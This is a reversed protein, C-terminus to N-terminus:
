MGLDNELVVGKLRKVRLLVENPLDFERVIRSLEVSDASIRRGDIIVRILEASKEVVAPRNIKSIPGLSKHYELVSVIAKLGDDRRQSCYEFGSMQDFISDVTVDENTLLDELWTVTSVHIRHGSKSRASRLVISSTEIGLQQLRHGTCPEQEISEGFYVADYVRAFLNAQAGLKSKQMAELMGLRFISRFNVTKALIEWREAMRTFEQSVLDQRDSLVKVLSPHLSPVEFLSTMSGFIKCAQDQKYVGHDLCHAILIAMAQQHGMRGFYTLASSLEILDDARTLVLSRAIANSQEANAALNKVDRRQDYPSRRSSERTPLGSCHFATLNLAKTLVASSIAAKRNILDTLTHAGGVGEMVSRAAVYQHSRTLSGVLSHYDQAVAELLGEDNTKVAEQFAQILAAKKESTPQM